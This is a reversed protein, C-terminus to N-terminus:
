MSSKTSSAPRILCPRRLKATRAPRQPSSCSTTKTRPRVDTAEAPETDTKVPNSHRLHSNAIDYTRRERYEQSKGDNWNQVPRYHHYPQGRANEGCEPCVFQEGALHNKCLTPRPCPFAQLKDAIKRVAGRRGELHLKEGLFAHFVTGSTYLTQLEDQIDLASIDATFIDSRPLLPATRITRSPARRRRSSTRTARSTTSPLATPRPSRPHPRLNYLDGYKEQYDSLAACTTSCM